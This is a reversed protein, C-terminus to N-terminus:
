GGLPLTLRVATGHTLAGTNSQVEVRGGHGAVVDHVLTLALGVAHQSGAQREFLYRIKESPIGPGDDEVSIALENASASRAAHVVISGGPLRRSGRRVYRLANGVLTAIVWAIKEPDVVIAELDGPAEVRLEVDLARAEHQLPELTSEILRVLDVSSRHLPIADLSSSRSAPAPSTAARPM